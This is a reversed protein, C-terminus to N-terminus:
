RSYVIYSSLVTNGGRPELDAGLTARYTMENVEGLRVHETIDLHIPTIPLGPCWYAREVAWNGFQGPSVGQNAANACGRLSGIEGEHQIIPLAVDNIKFHHRHDCWEACNDRSTQGHGSLLIVLEIRTSDSPPTFTFVERTNYDANFEGGIFARTADISRLRDGQLRLRLKISTDRETAREWGPGMEVRFTHSGGEKLWGLFPSVDWIWRREGRRWYPTIWRAIEDRDNCESDHCYEVRAIRDWESCAYVNRHPCTVSVDLELTDFQAMAHTEPLDVTQTFIRDSVRGEVLVIETAEDRAAQDYVQAIHNYFPGLYSAMDFKMPSGVTEDLSGGSDWRQLRDIGFIFPLPSQVQGRDGLDVLSDPDFVFDLYDRAFAGLSGEIETLRDTVFHMRRAPIQEGASLSRIMRNNMEVMRIRRAEPDEEISIFFYHTNPPTYLLSIVDSNWLQDGAWLGSSNQRLDPFYVLFIYSECGTWQDQLTWPGRLTQVTFNGAIKGFTLTDDEVKFPRQAFGGQECVDHSPLGHDISSLSSDISLEGDKQVMISADGENNVMETGMDEPVGIARTTDNTKQPECAVVSIWMIILSHRLLPQM